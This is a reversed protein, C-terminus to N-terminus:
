EKAAPDEPKVAKPKLAEEVYAKVKLFLEHNKQYGGGDVKLLIRSDDPDSSDFPTNLVKELKDLQQKVVDQWGAKQNALVSDIQEKIKQMTQTLYHQRETTITIVADNFKGEAAERIADDLEMAVGIAQGIREMAKAFFLEAADFADEAKLTRIGQAKIKAASRFREADKFYADVKKQMIENNMADVTEKDFLAKGGFSAKAYEGAMKLHFFVGKSGELWDDKLTLASQPDPSSIMKVVMAVHHDFYAKYARNRLAQVVDAYTDLMGAKTAEELVKDLKRNINILEANEAVTPYGLLGKGATEMYDKGVKSELDEVFKVGATKMEELNAKFTLNEREAIGKMLEGAEDFKVLGAAKAEAHVKRALTMLESVKGQIVDKSQLTGQDIWRQALRFLQKIRTEYIEVHKGEIKALLESKASEQIMTAKSLTAHAAKVYGLTQKFWDSYQSTKASDLIPETRSLFAEARRKHAMSGIKKIEEMVTGAGVGEVVVDLMKGKSALDAANSLAKEIYEIWEDNTYLQIVSVGKLPKETVRARALSIQEKVKVVYEGQMYSKIEAELRASVSSFNAASIGVKGPIARIEAFKKELASGKLKKVKASSIIKQAMAVCLDSRLEAIKALIDERKFVGYVTDGVGFLPADKISAATKSLYEELQSIATTLVSVTAASTGRIKSMTEILNKIATAYGLQRIGDLKLIEVTPNLVVVMRISDEMNVVDGADSQKKAIVLPLLYRGDGLSSLILTPVAGKWATDVISNRMGYTGDPKMENSYLFSGKSDTPMYMAQAKVLFIKYLTIAQDLEGAEFLKIFRPLSAKAFKVYEVVKTPDTGELTTIGWRKMFAQLGEDKAATLALKVRPYGSGKAQVQSLRVIMDGGKKYRDPAFGKQGEVAVNDVFVLDEDPDIYYVNFKKSDLGLTTYAKEDALRVTFDKPKEVVVPKPKLQPKFLPSGAPGQAVMYKIVDPLVCEEYSAFSQSAGSEPVLQFESYGFRGQAVCQYVYDKCTSQKEPDKDYGFGGDDDPKGCNKQQQLLQAAWFSSGRPEKVEGASLVM